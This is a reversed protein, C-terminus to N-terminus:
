KGGHSVGIPGSPRRPAHGASRVPTERPVVVRDVLPHEVVARVAVVEFAEETAGEMTSRPGDEIKPTAGPIVRDLERAATM